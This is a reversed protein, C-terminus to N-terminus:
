IEPARICNALIRQIYRLQIPAKRKQVMGYMIASVLHMWENQRQEWKSHQKGNM